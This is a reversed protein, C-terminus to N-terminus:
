IATPSKSEIGTSFGSNVGLIAAAAGALSAAAIDGSAISPFLLDDTIWGLVYSSGITMVAYLVTGV